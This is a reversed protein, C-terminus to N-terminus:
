LPIALLPPEGPQSPFTVALKLLDAIALQMRYFGDSFDVKIIKVLGKRPNATVIKRIIWELAKGFQM